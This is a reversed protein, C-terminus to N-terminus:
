SHVGEVHASTCEHFQIDDVFDCFMSAVSKKQKLTRERTGNREQEDLYVKLTGMGTSWDAQGGNVFDANTMFYAVHPSADFAGTFVSTEDFEPSYTIKVDHIGDCLDPIRRM